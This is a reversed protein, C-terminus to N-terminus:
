RETDAQRDILTNVVAAAQAAGDVTYVLASADFRELRLAEGSSTIFGSSGDFGSRLGVGGYNGLASVEVASASRIQSLETRRLTRGFVRVSVGTSDAVVTAYQIPVAMVGIVVALVVMLWWPGDIRWMWVAMGLLLAVSATLVGSALAGHRMPGSWAVRATESVHARPAGDPAAPRPYPAVGVKTRVVLAHVVGVVTGAVLGIAMSANSMPAGAADSLGRQALVSGYLLAGMFVSTGSAIATTSPQRTAVTILTLLLGMGVILATSTGLASTVSAFGDAAGSPGWHTAVPHPLQGRADTVLWTGAVVTATIVLLAIVLSIRRANKLEM